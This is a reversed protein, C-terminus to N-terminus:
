EVTFGNSNKKKKGLYGFTNALSVRIICKSGKCTVQKYKTVYQSLNWQNALQIYPWLTSNQYTTYIFPSYLVINQPTYPPNMLNKRINYLKATHNWHKVTTVTKM